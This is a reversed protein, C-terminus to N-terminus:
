AGRRSHRMCLGGDAACARCFIYKAADFADMAAVGSMPAATADIGVVRKANSEISYASKIVILAWCSVPACWDEPKDKRTILWGPQATTIQLIEPFNLAYDDSGASM